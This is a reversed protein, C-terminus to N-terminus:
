VNCEEKYYQSQLHFMEAYKGKNLLLEDHTGIEIIEGGEIMVIRDCFRTSALRHSIYIATKNGILKDFDNYIQSEALPDLASTPEDLVVIGGNKYLARSLAIRQNEGGSLEIGEEDLFKNLSTNIGSKLSGIKDYMGTQILNQKVMEHDASESVAVNEAISFPFLKYEQFVTSFLYFYEHEDFDNINTNNLLIEGEDVKYLRCLLKIFTSKGAGNVGVVGLREGPKIKLSFNKYVYQDSGPYKFSVNRFEIEYYPNIPISMTTNSAKINTHDLFKRLDDLIKLQIKAHAGFHTLTQIRSSFSAVTTAILIFDGLTLGKNIVAYILYGYVLAEQGFTLMTSVVQNFFFKQKIKKNLKQKDVIVQNFKHTIWNTLGFVHIDKGYAFDYMTNQIYGSKRHIESMDNRKSYEYNQANLNRRYELFFRFGLYLLIVPHITIVIVVYGALSLLSSGIYRLTNLVGDPGAWDNSIGDRTTRVENLFTPNETNKFETTMCAEVHKEIFCECRFKFIRPGASWQAYFELAKSAFLLVFFSLILVVLKQEDRGNTLEDIIFKPFLLVFFSSGATVIIDLMQLLLISKDYRWVKHLLYRLTQMELSKQKQHKSIAL